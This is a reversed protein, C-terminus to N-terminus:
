RSAPLPAPLVEDPTPHAPLPIAPLPAGARPLGANLDRHVVWAVGQITDVGYAMSPNGNTLVAMMYDRGYGNFVGISNIVWLSPDPLWGNKVHVVLGSPAGYPTGWRQWSVVQAMLDLEYARASSPLVTNAATLTQLLLLEDHATIQTLGWAYPDLVTEYMHALNLFHRLRTQGVEDWLATAANNDSETIMLTALYKENATLPKGTEAHWRLLAALIIAKVVSASHFHAGQNLACRVSRHLDFVTVAHSGQRGAVAAQIDRSLRAALAAYGSPATCIGERVVGAPVSKAATAATAAAAATSGPGATAVAAGGAMAVALAASFALTTKIRM